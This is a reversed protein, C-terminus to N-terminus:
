HKSENVLMGNEHYQQNAVRVDHSVCTNLAAPDVNSFYVQHDYAYANLKAWKVHSFLDSIFINFLMPGLVNRQPVGRRVSEWASCTDGVKIRQSRGSFYNRLLACSADNKGYAKLKSLLLAVLEGRDGMM